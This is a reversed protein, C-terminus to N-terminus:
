HQQHGSGPSVHVDPQLYVDEPLVGTCLQQCRLGLPVPSSPVMSVEPHHADACAAQRVQM